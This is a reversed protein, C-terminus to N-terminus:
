APHRDPRVSVPRGAHVCREPRHRCCRGGRRRDARRSSKRRNPRSQRLKLDTMLDLGAKGGKAGPAAYQTVTQMVKGAGDDQRFEPVNKRIFDATPQYVDSGMASVIDAPLTLTGVAADRLGGLVAGGPDDPLITDVASPIATLLKNWGGRQGWPKNTEFTGQLDTGFDQDVAELFGSNQMPEIFLQGTDDRKLPGFVDQVGGVPQPDEPEAAQVPQMAGSAQARGRAKAELELARIRQEPTM